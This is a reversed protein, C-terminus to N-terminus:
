FAPEGMDDAPAFGSEQSQNSNQMQRTTSIKRVDVFAVVRREIIFSRNEMTGDTQDQGHLVLTGNDPSELHTIYNFTASKGSTWTVLVKYTHENSKNFNSM